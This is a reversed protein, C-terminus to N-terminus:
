ILQGERPVVLVRQVANWDLYPREDGEPVILPVGFAADDIYLHAYAKPSSTWSAQNPNSNIGLLPLGHSDFWDVADLLEQGSRMTWLILFHGQEVLQALVAQAGIDRGIDPYAHTVCTGDFDVAIIM